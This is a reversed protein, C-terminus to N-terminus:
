QTGANISIEPMAGGSQGWRDLIEAYTGDDVMKQLAQQIVKELGDHSKSVLVGYLSPFMVPDGLATFQGQFNTNAEYPLFDSGNVAAVARGQIVQNLLDPIGSASTIVKISNAAGCEAQSIQEIRAPYGTATSTVVTQGCLDRLETIESTSALKMVATGTKFYDVINVVQQREPTDLTGSMVIDTRGSQTSPLLTAFDSVATTRIPFGLVDSIGQALDIDLGVLQGSSDIFEFPPSPPQTFNNIYGRDIIDQPLQAALESLQEGAPKPSPQSASTDSPASTCASSALMVLSAVFVTASHIAKM